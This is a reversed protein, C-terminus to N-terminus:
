EGVPSNDKAAALQQPLDAPTLVPIPSQAFGTLDRSVIADLGAEVACAIQLNDEYDSGAQRRALQLTSRGVPAIELSELCIRVGEHARSLDSQRRMVYFLTPVAFAAVHAVVEGARHADWTAASDTVWPARNLLVDLIVNLDLLVRM